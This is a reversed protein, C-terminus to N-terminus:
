FACLSEDTPKLAIQDDMYYQYHLILQLPHYWFSNNKNKTIYYM